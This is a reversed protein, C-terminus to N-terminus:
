NGIELEWDAHSSKRKANQMKGKQDQMKGKGSTM